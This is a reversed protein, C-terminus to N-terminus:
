KLYVQGVFMRMEDDRIYFTYWGEQDLTLSDGHIVIGADKFDTAKKKGPLYKMTYEPSELGAIKFQLLGKNFETGQAVRVDNVLLEIGKNDYVMVGRVERSTNGVSDTATYVVEYYGGKYINVNNVVNVKDTMDGDMNDIATFGPEEYEFPLGKYVPYSLPGQLTIEPPENDINQVIAEVNFPTGYQDEVQFIFSGNKYFTYDTQGRNNIVKVGSPCTITVNVPEKTLELTSYSLTCNPPTKNIWTVNATISSLEASDSLKEGHLGEVDFAFSGNNKFTYSVWGDQYTVGEKPKIESGVYITATVDGSTSKQTSYRIQPTIGKFSYERINGISLTKTFSQIDEHGYKIQYHIPYTGNETFNITQTTAFEGENNIRFPYDYTFTATVVDTLQHTNFSVSIDSRAQDETLSFNMTIEDLVKNRDDYLVAHFYTNDPIEIAEGDYGYWTSGEYGPDFTYNIVQNAPEGTNKCDHLMIKHKNDSGDSDASWWHSLNLTYGEYKLPRYCDKTEYVINEPSVYEFPNKSSWSAGYDFHKSDVARAHIKFSTQSEPLELASTDIIYEVKKPEPINQKEADPGIPGTVIDYAVQSDHWHETCNPDTCIQYQAALVGHNDQVAMGVKGGSDMITKDFTIKPPTKDVIYTVRKLDDYSYMRGDSPIEDRNYIVRWTTRGGTIKDATVVYLYYEGEKDLDYMDRRILCWYGEFYGGASVYEMAKYYRKEEVMNGDGDDVMKKFRFVPDDPDPEIPNTSWIFELNDADIDAASKTYRGVEKGNSLKLSLSYRSYVFVALEPEVIKPRM